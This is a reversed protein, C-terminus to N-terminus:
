SFCYPCTVWAWADFKKADVNEYGCVLRLDDSEKVKCLMWIGYNPLDEESKIRHWLLYEKKVNM